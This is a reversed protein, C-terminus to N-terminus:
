LTRGLGKPNGVGRAGQRRRVAEADPPPLTPDVRAVDFMAPFAQSPPSAPPAEGVPTGIPQAGVRRPTSPRPSVVVSAHRQRSPAEPFIVWATTFLLASVAYGPLAAETPTVLLSAGGVLLAFVLTLYAIPRRYHAPPDRRHAGLGTPEAGPTPEAPAAGPSGPHMAWGAVLLLAGVAISPLRAEQTTVVIGASAAWLGLLLCLNAVTRQGPRETPGAAELPTGLPAEGGPAPPALAAGAPALTGQCGLVVCRAPSTKPDPCEVHYAAGCADCALLDGDPADHCLPCRAHAGKATVKLESTSM